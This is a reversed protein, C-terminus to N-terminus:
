SPFLKDLYDAVGDRVNPLALGAAAAKAERCANGMAVGLGVSELMPVDNEGDGFAVANEPKIGRLGLAVKLAAGKSVGAAMVELFTAHSRARYVRGGFSADVSAQVETMRPEEAIFLAKVVGGEAIGGPACAEEFDVTRGRLGTRLEYAETEPLRRAYILQGDPLFAHVHVGAGRAIEACRALIDADLLTRALVAGSPVDVVAAGNYFVMPGEAGVAARYAEAAAPSRGTCLLVQLGRDRCARLAAATRPSVTSDPLLITGDLDVAVARAAAPDFDPPIRVLDM